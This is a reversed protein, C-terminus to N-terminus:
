FGVCESGPSIFTFSKICRQFTRYRSSLLIVALSVLAIRLWVSFVSTSFFVVVICVGFAFVVSCCATFACGDQIFVIFYNNGTRANSRAIGARASLVSKPWPAAATAHAISSEPMLWLLTSLANFESSLCMM